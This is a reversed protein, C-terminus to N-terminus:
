HDPDLTSEHREVKSPSCTEQSHRERTSGGAVEMEGTIDDERHLRVQSERAGILSDQETGSRYKVPKEPLM